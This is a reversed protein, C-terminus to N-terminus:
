ALAQELEAVTNAIEIADIPAGLQRELQARSLVGRIRSFSHSSSSEVVLMHNRGIHKFTEVLDGVTSAKLQDFDLADLKPLATMVDQVCLDEHRINRKNILRMPKEGLLDTTTILGEICPFKSVVFLMRVGQQIMMREAVHLSASPDVTAAKVQTLDTMVLLADSELEVPRGIEPQAQAICTDEPFRFTPLSLFSM